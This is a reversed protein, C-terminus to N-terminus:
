SEGATDKLYKNQEIRALEKAKGSRVGGATHLLSSGLYQNIMM